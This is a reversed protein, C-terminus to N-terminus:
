GFIPVWSPIEYYTNGNGTDKGYSVTKNRTQVIHVENTETVRRFLMPVVLAGVALVLVLVGVVMGVELM